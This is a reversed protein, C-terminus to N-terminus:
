KNSIIFELRNSTINGQWMDNFNYKEMAEKKIFDSNEFKAQIYYKGLNKLLVGGNEFDIYIGDFQNGQQDKLGGMSFRGKLNICYSLKPSLLVYDKEFPFKPDLEFIIKPYNIFKKNSSSTITLWGYEYPGMWPLIRISRNTNNIIKINLILDDGVNFDNKNLKLQISMDKKNIQMGTILFVSLCIISVFILHIPRLRM